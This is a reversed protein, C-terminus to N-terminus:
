ARRAKFATEAMTRASQERNDIWWRAVAQGYLGQMVAAAHQEFRDAKEPPTRARAAHVFDAVEGVKTTRIERAWAIQKPSGSLTPLDHETEVAVCAAERNSTRCVGCLGDRGAWAIYHQRITEKGFLACIGAHGCSYTINYKAM